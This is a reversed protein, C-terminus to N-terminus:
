SKVGRRKSQRILERMRLVDRNKGTRRTLYKLGNYTVGYLGDSVARVYGDQILMNLAERVLRIDRDAKAAAVLDEERVPQFVNVLGLVSVKELLSVQEVKKSEQNVPTGMSM